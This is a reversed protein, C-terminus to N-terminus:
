LLPYLTPVAQTVLLRPGDPLTKCNIVLLSSNCYEAKSFVLRNSWLAFHIFILWIQVSLDEIVQFKNIKEM